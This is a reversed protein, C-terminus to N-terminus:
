YIYEPVLWLHQVMICNLPLLAVLCMRTTPQFIVPSSVNHMVFLCLYTGTDNNM